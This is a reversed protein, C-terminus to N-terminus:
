HVSSFQAMYEKNFTNRRAPAVTFFPVFACEICIASMVLLIWPYLEPLYLLVPDTM